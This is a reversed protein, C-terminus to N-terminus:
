LDQRSSKGEKSWHSGHSYHGCPVTALPAWVQRQVAQTLNWGLVRSLVKKMPSLIFDARLEETVLTQGLNFESVSMWCSQKGAHFGHRRQDAQGLVKAHVVKYCLHEKSLHNRAKCKMEKVGRRGDTSGNSKLCGVKFLLVGSHGEREKGHTCTSTNTHALSTCVCTHVCPYWLSINPIKRM